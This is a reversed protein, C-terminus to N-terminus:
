SQSAQLANLIQPDKTKRAIEILVTARRENPWSRALGGLAALMEPTKPALKPKGFLSSGGQAFAILTDLASISGSRGLLFLAMVRFEPPFDADTVREALVEVAADPLSSRAAQLATRLVHRDTDRLAQVLAADRTAANELQLQLTERRVRGDEHTRFQEMPLADVECGAERLLSIMNRVVFWRPDDLREAVVPAIGPGITVLRDMIARRTSRQRAEVLEDVLPRAATVGMRAVIRDIIEFDIPEEKLLMTLRAPTAIQDTIFGAARNHAPAKRIMDFLERMGTETRAQDAVAGWVVNGMAGSELSLQVIRIPEPTVRTRRREAKQQFMSDFSTAASSITGASWTEVLHVILSRFSSDARQRMDGTLTEAEGRLKQLLRALPASLPRDFTAATSAALALVARPPLARACANVFAVREGAELAAILLKRTPAPLEVLVAGVVPALRHAAPEVDFADVVRQLAQAATRTYADTAGAIARAVAAGDLHRGDPVGLAACAQIWAADVRSDGISNPTLGFSSDLGEM